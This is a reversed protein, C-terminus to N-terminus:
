CSFPSTQVMGHELLFARPSFGREAEVEWIVRPSFEARVGLAPTHPSGPSALPLVLPLLTLFALTMQLM